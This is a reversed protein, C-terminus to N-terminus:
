NFNSSKKTVFSAIVIKQEIKSTQTQIKNGREGCGKIADNNLISFASALPIIKFWFM